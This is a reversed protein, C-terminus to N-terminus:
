HADTLTQKLTVKIISGEPVLDDKSYDQTIVTGSGEININLNKNKLTNTAESANM